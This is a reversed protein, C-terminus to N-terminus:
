RGFVSSSDHVLFQEVEEAELEVRERGVHGEFGKAPRGGDLAEEPLELQGEASLAAKGKDGTLRSRSLTDNKTKEGLTEGKLGLEDHADEGPRLGVEGVKVALHAIDEGNGKSGVISPGSGLQKAVAPLGMELGGENPGDKEDVFGLLHVGGHEILEPEKEAGVEVGPLKEGDNEGAIRSEEVLESAVVEKGKRAANAGSEREFGQRGGFKLLSKDM